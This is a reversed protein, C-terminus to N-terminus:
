KEGGGLKVRPDVLAYIIDLLFVTLALLYAYIVVTGVIVPTDFMNIASQTLRGIGPWGFVTELVIAGTWLGILTLAFSTIITPLTPRLVYRREIARDSLGKAKAMDVYDESSYILFFTRWYYSTLFISSLVIAGVPLVMHKLVSVARLWPNQPPPADIMGGFPLWGLLAAFILILFIGYFWAPAASTPAMAVVIRDIVSGYRRSLFLAFFVSTFFLLMQGSAMLLLTPTLREGLINRVQRSGSDSLLYEANGLNLTLGNWLYRFSRVMFPQDLGVQRIRIQVTQEYIQQREAQSLYAMEPNGALQLSVQERIQGERMKDVYGGGNAILIALYVGIVVTILLTIGKMLTYKAIRGLNGSTRQTKQVTQKEATEVNAM